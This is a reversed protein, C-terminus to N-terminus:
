SWEDFDENTPDIRIKGKEKVTLDDIARVRIPNYMDYMGRTKEAQRSVWDRIRFFFYDAPIHNKWLRRQKLVDTYVGWISVLVEQKMDEWHEQVEPHRLLVYTVMPTLAKLLLEFHQVKPDVSYLIAISNIEDKDYM